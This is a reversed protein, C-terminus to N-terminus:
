RSAGSACSLESFCNVANVAAEGRQKYGFVLDIWAHLHTGVYESELAQRHLEVFLRPNGKAWPPLEVDDILADNEQRRGLELGNANTLFDPLYFFEPILERVDSRNQSYLSRDSHSCARLLLAVCASASEWARKVSWFLRDAHDFSGGQLDLYAETFPALRILYGSAIMASTYHTGYHFPKPDDPGDLEALQAYREQFERLREPSQCGM